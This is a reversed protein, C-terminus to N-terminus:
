LRARQDMISFGVLTPDCDKTLAIIKFREGMEEPMTLKRVQQATETQSKIDLTAMDALLNELGCGFLFYAQTTYGNVHLGIADACEAVATFNVSATIDQLGPYLFPDAHVRHRYHCLLTGGIREPHYYDSTSYGYDIFLMVGRQLVEELGNIWKALDTNIESIYNEALPESLQDELQTLEKELEADADTEIWVFEDNDLGVKLEKFSEPTKKFRRVVLADLIENALILGSFSKEPLSDLWVVREMLHPISQNLLEQQRQKLDASIELIFYSEPLLGIKELELLLDRAMVGTGAGLELISGSGLKNLVQGCQYALCQSFLPSIEPATVFDGKAGFKRSGASYYGLGPEYLVTSMYQKFGIMGGQEKILDKIRVVLKESQLLADQEPVPLAPDINLLKSQTM